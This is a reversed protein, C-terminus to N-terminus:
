KDSDYPFKVVTYELHNLTSDQRTLNCGQVGSPRALVTQGGPTAAAEGQEEEAAAAELVSMTSRRLPKKLSFSHRGIMLRDNRVEDNGDEAAGGEEVIQVDILDGLDLDAPGAIPPPKKSEQSKTGQAGPGREDKRAAAIIPNEQDIGITGMNTATMELVM